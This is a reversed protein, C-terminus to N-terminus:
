IGSQATAIKGLGGVTLWYGDSGYYAYNILDSGYSSTGLTWTGTPDSATALSGYDGVIVWCGNGYGIGYASDTGFNLVRQTWTGAPNTATAVAGTGAPTEAAAFVWYGDAGYNVDYIIANAAVLPSTGLSWTIGDPSTALKNGEGVAVYTNNGFGMGRIHDGGFPSVRQTWTIGDPSTAIKGNEGGAVFLGNGFTIALITTSGFSSTRATWTIGDPSTAIRGIVGYNGGVAVFLGLGYAVDDVANPSVFPNSRLTWIGTPDSATMIKAMAGGVVWTGIAHTVCVGNTSGLANARQTWTIPCGGGRRTKLIGRLSLM